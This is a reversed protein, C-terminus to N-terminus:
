CATLKYRLEGAERYLVFKVRRGQLLYEESQRRLERFDAEELFDRLLSLREELLVDGGGALFRRVTDEYEKKAVTEICHSLDPLLEVEVM